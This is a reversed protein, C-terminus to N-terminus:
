VANWCHNCLTLLNLDQSFPQITYSSIQIRLLLLRLDIPTLQLVNCSIKKLLILIYLFSYICDRWRHISALHYNISLFNGFRLNSHYKLHRIQTVVDSMQTIKWALFQLGFSILDSLLYRYIFLTFSIDNEIAWM